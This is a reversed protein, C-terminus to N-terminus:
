PQIATQISDEVFNDQSGGIASLTIEEGHASLKEMTHVFLVAEGVTLNVDRKLVDADHAVLPFVIGNVNADVFKSSIAVLEGETLASTERVIESNAIWNGIQVPTWESGPSLSSM